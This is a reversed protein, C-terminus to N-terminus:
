PTRENLGHNYLSAHISPHVAPHISPRLPQHISPHISPYITVTLPSITPKGQLNICIDDNPLHVLYDRLRLLRLLLLRLLRLLLLLFVSSSSSLIIFFLLLVFTIFLIIILIALFITFFFLFWYSSRLIIVIFLFMFYSSLFVVIHNHHKDHNCLHCHHPDSTTAGPSNASHDIQPAAPKDQGREPSGFPPPGSFPSILCWLHPWTRPSFSSLGNKKSKPPTSDGSWVM